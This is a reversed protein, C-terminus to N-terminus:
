RVPVHFTATYQDFLSVRDTITISWTGAPSLLADAVTWHGPGSAYYTETLPGIAKSPLAATITLQKTQKFPAGTTADILYLHMSNPGSRAPTVVAELVAPGLRVNAAFPGSAADIPPAYAVLTATAAFVVTMAALESRTTQRLLVGIEGPTSAAALLRRLAPIVRERNVAGLGILIGLLGTKVLVLEGYTSTTLAHLSRVDIYAQIVGTCAIVVVAGLALPSFRALVGVLMATRQVPEVARTAAPLAIVIAVIGGVWVSAALV